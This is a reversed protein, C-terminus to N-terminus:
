EKHSNNIANLINFVSISFKLHLISTISPFSFTNPKLYKQTKNEIKPLLYLNSTDNILKKYNFNYKTTVEISLSTVNYLPM